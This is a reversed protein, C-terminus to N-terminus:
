KPDRFRNQIKIKSTIKGVSKQSKAQRKIKHETVPKKAPSDPLLYEPIHETVKQQVKHEGRQGEHEYSEKKKGLKVSPRVGKIKERQM